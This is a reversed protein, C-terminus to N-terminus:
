RRTVLYSLVLGGRVLERLAVRGELSLGDTGANTTDGRQRQQADAAQM